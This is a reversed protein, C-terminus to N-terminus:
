TTRASILSPRTIPRWSAWCGSCKWTGIVSSRWCGRPVCRHLYGYLYLRLLDAPDYPRSGTNEVVAHAFGLARVDLSAVFADLFRVPNDAAIYDELREPLLLTQHRDL